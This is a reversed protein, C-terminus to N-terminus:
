TRDRQQSIMEITGGGSKQGMQIGTVAESFLLITKPM